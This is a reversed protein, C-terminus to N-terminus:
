SQYAATFTVDRAAIGEQEGGFRIRCRGLPEAWFGSPNSDALIERVLGAAALNDIGTANSVEQSFVTVTWESSRAFTAAGYESEINDPEGVLAVLGAKGVATLIETAIDGPRAVIVGAGHPWLPSGAIADALAQQMRREKM